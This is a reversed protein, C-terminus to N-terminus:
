TIDAALQETRTPQPLAGEPAVTGRGQIALASAIICLMLEGIVQRLAEGGIILGPVAAVVSAVSSVFLAVDLMADDSKRGRARECAGEALAAILLSAVLLKLGALTHALTVTAVASLSFASAVSLIIEGVNARGIDFLPRQLSDAADMAWVLALLLTVLHAGIRAAIRLGSM